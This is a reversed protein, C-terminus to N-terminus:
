YGAIAWLTYALAEIWGSGTSGFHASSFDGKGSYYFLFGFTILLGVYIILGVWILCAAFWRILFTVLIRIIKHIRVFFNFSFYV